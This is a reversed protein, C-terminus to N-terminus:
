EPRQSFELVDLDVQELQKLVFRRIADPKPLPKTQKGKKFLTYLLDVRKGGCACPWKSPFRKAVFEARVEKDIGKARLIRATREFYVDTVLGDKIQQVTATHLM